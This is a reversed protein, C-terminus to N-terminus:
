VVTDIMKSALTEAFSETNYYGNSVRMKAEAVREPRVDPQGKVMSSLVKVEGQVDRRKQGDTSLDSRDSHGAGSGKTAPQESKARRSGDVKRLEGQMTQSQSVNSILM